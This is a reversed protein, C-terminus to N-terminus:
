KRLNTRRTMYTSKMVNKRKGGIMSRHASMKRSKPNGQELEINLGGAIDFLDQKLMNSFENCTVYGSGDNDASKIM